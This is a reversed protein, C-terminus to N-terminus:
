LYYQLELFHGPLANTEQISKASFILNTKKILM